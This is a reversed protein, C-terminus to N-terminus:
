GVTLGPVTFAPMRWGMEGSAADHVTQCQVLLVELMSRDCGLEAETLLRNILRATVMRRQPTLDCSVLAVPVSHVERHAVGRRSPDPRSPDPRPPLPLVPSGGGPSGMSGAHGDMAARAHALLQEDTLNGMERRAFLMAEVRAGSEVLNLYHQSNVLMAADRIIASEIGDLAKTATAAYNQTISLLSLDDATVHQGAIIAAVLQARQETRDSPKKDSIKAM